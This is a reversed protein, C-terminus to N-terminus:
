DLSLASVPKEDGPVDHEAHEHEANHEGSHSVGIPWEHSGSRVWTFNSFHVDQSASLSAGPSLMPDQSTYEIDFNSFDHLGNSIQPRIPPDYDRALVLDWDMAKFFPHKKIAELTLRKEVNREILQAVFLFTLQITQCTVCISDFSKRINSHIIQAASFDTHVRRLPDSQIM